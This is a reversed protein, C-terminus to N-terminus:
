VAYTHGGLIGLFASTSAQDFKVDSHHVLLFFRDITARRFQPLSFLPYNYRPLRSWFLVSLFATLAGLLVGFEFTIPLFAPWSLHRTGAVDFPYAWVASWSQFGFAFTAAALTAALMSFSVTTRRNPLLVDLEPMPYPSFTEVATYGEAVVQRVARLLSEADEFELVLGYLAENM